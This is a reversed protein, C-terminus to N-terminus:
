PFFVRSHLSLAQHETLFSLSYIHILSLLDVPDTEDKLLEYKLLFVNTYRIVDRISKIYQKLGFQFLETWTTKAWREESIEGLISDLKSFLAEHINAISPAPIEFPM